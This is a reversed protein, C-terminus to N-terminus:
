EKYNISMDVIILHCHQMNQDICMMLLGEIAAKELVIINLLIVKYLIYCNSKHKTILGMIQHYIEM